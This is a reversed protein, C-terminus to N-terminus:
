NAKAADSATDLILDLLEQGPLGEAKRAKVWAEWVPHAAVERFKALDEDSYTIFTLGAEKFLPINKDDAAKYAAKLADYALPEAEMVLKQYQEPLKKWSNINIVTPCGITGPALNTTFWDGIEYTKYSGHAYTSPFSVADITGRDLATYVETSTVSTPIAGLLKMAEGLGGLARVRLGEWNELETPADGTGVFEYQPLLNSMYPMANWGALEKRIVDSDFYAEHVAQQVDATPLPLFPLDLGTMAPLKDPHFSTCFMTMDLADAKLLDLLERSGGFSGYGIMINFKGGTKEAVHDKLLEVGATFARPMGWTGLRWTVEPGEVTEAAAQMPAMAGFAAVALAAIALHTRPGAM